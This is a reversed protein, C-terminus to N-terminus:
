EFKLVKQDMNILSVKYTHIKHDGRLLSNTHNQFRIRFTRRTSGIYVKNDILNIIQYIGTEELQEIECQIKM